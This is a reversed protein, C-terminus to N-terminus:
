NRALPRLRAPFVMNGPRQGLELCRQFYLAGYGRTVYDERSYGLQGAVQDIWRQPGELELFTGIPTEDYVVYPSGSAKQRGLPAYVTRYKEYSFTERLGLGQLIEKVCRGESVRAEVERRVKYRESRLRVGKYTLVGQRGEFRLRLLCRAKRLRQDPFDFFHNSEFYRAKIRRFRLERLRRKLLRPDRVPLKIEIEHREKM